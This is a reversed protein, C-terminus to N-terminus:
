SLRLSNNVNFKEGLKKGYVEIYKYTYKSCYITLLWFLVIGINNAMSSGFDMYKVGEILPYLRTELLNDMLTFLARIYLLLIGHIMYISYSLVGLWQLWKM